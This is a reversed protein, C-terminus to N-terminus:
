DRNSNLFRLLYIFLNIFDLYLQLASIVSAKALLAQNGQYAYYQARIKQTDYATMGLFIVIGMLCMATELIPINIFLLILGAVVLFIVGGMLFPGLKSLDTNTFYGFAALAGFYLATLFFVGIVRGFGYAYFLSSFTVGTLFSYGLFLGTATGVSIKNIRFSLFMVVAIQAIGLGISLVPSTFMLTALPSLAVILASGFTILLGLCMWAFTKATYKSLSLGASQGFMQENFDTNFQQNM